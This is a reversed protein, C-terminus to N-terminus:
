YKLHNSFFPLMQTEIRERLKDGHGGDHRRLEHTIGAQDLLSSLYACGRPIWQYHDNAGYDIVIARLSSLNGSYCEIKEALGGYGLELKKLVAPNQALGAGSRSFPYDIFPPRGEPRPAFAASYAYFSALSYDVENGTAYLSEIYTRFQTRAQDAPLRDLEAQKSLYRDAFEPSLYKDPNRIGKDDFLGPSFSYVSGFVDPHKMALHFSGFGGMSEGTIGRSSASPITRYTSDVHGVVDQVIFDEWNGTVPSNTYFSGGLFNRGNAVVLIMEEIIGRGILRDIARALSGRSYKAAVIEEVYTTFGPLYYIVPYRRDTKYYSPPLYVMAPQQGPNDFRSNQLSPAPVM